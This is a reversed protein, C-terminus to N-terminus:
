QNFGSSSQNSDGGGSPMAPFESDLGVLVDRPKSGSAPGIVGQDELLDLLRAARAYGVRLRRQLLSASAKGAQVVTQRAEDYLDDDVEGDGGVGGTLGKPAYNAVEENYQPPSNKKLFGTVEEIEKETLLCGQMRRPKSSYEPSIFLMDGKGLLKEAGASDIITRSDVQSAVTFAMRTTINAKILGTIVDVSPRQTAVVLHIGVARAMQALRVIAGEVEKASQAMLDALEDIVIVIYPLTNDPNKENFSIIDRSGANQLMKYRREMEVLSWKLTNITKDPETIVPTLLHPIDNFPTFEVRKPDVLIMKLEEPTNQYLLGTILSNIAISKGSGTSGAILLHPMKKLDAAKPEGAANRGLAIALSSKVKKFEDTELVERLTVM